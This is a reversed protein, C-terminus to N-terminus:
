RRLGLRESIQELLAEDPADGLEDREPMVGLHKLIATASERTERVWAPSPEAEMQDRSVRLTAGLAELANPMEATVRREIVERAVEKRTLRGERRLRRILPESVGYQEALVPTSAEPPANRIEDKQALTLKAEAM